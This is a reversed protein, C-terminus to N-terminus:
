PQDTFRNMINNNTTAAVRKSWAVACPCSAAASAADVFAGADGGAGVAGVGYVAGAGTVTVGVGAHIGASGYARGGTGGGFFVRGTGNKGGDAVSKNVRPSRRGEGNASGAAV